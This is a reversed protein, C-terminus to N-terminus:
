FAGLKTPTVRVAVSYGQAFQDPSYGIRQIAAAYKEIMAPVGTAPPAAQDVIARGQIRVVHGGQADSNLNLAVRPNQEINRLKSQNPQSYILVTDGDWLFWVPVSQPQGAPTVTTLWIIEEERLREDAMKGANSSWDIM